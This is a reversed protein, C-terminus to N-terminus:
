MAGPNINTSAGDEILYVPEGNVAVLGAIAIVEDRDESDFLATAEMFDDNSQPDRKRRGYLTYFVRDYADHDFTSSDNLREITSGEEGAGFVKINAIEGVMEIEYEAFPGDTGLPEIEDEGRQGYGDIVAQRAIGELRKILELADGLTIEAGMSLTEPGDMLVVSAITAPGSRDAQLRISVDYVADIPALQGDRDREAWGPGAPVVVTDNDSVQAM